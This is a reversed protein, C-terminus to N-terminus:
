LMESRLKMARFIFKGLNCLEKMNCSSMLQVYKFMSPKKWYYPKIFYSRFGQYMPCKLVFHMEDEIDNKCYVCLRNNRSIASFRGCEIALNHSSLRLKTICKKYVDPIPKGLYYQLCLNHVMYQYSSCKSSTSLMGDFEQKQCDFLRQKILFLFDNCIKYDTFFGQNFWIDGLGVRLLENKIFYLWNTKNSPCKLLEDYLFNYCNKLICNTTCLLKFWYKFIRCKRTYLLPLRGLEYYVMVNNTTSKVKLINKCYNLHIREVAPAKHAGWIECGYSLVSNIYTDFLSLLTVYNLYVDSTTRRLAFVAKRGQESLKQQLVNYKGNYYLLVGLYNFRDVIEIEQNNFFCKENECINGGTRFVVIKTKSINVNLSWKSTYVFLTDLMKQLGFVTESFIVMDDAYM